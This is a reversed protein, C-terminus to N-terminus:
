KGRANLRGLEFAAQHYEIFHRVGTDIASRFMAAAGNLDGRAMRGMGVYYFAECEQERRTTSRTDQAAELVEGEDSKGLAFRVIPGPWKGLDLRGANTALEASAASGSQATAVYLLLAPYANEPELAVAARFEAAAQDLRGVDYYALGRNEYALGYNPDLAIVRDYDRIALDFQGHDRVANGRNNLAGLFKPDLALAADFDRIALEFRGMDAHANGRSSYSQARGPALRIARDYDEIARDYLFLNRYAVGRNFYADTFNDDILIARDYDQIAFRQRRLGAQANGRHYFAIAMNPPTLDGTALCISLFAVQEDRRGQGELAQAQRCYSLDEAQARGGFGLAALLAVTAM